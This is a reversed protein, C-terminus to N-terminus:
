RMLPNLRIESGDANTHYVRIQDPGHVFVRWGIVPIDRCTELGVPPLGLCENWIQPEITQIMFESRDSGTEATVTQSVRSTVIQSTYTNHYLNADDFTTQHNRRIESGDTNTHYAIVQNPGSVIVYWGPTPSTIHSDCTEGTLNTSFGLCGSWNMSEYAEVAFHTTALGTEAAAQSLIQEGLSPSLEGSNVVASQSRLVDANQDARYVWQQYGDAISVLWGPTLVPTCVEGAQGLGLCSDSWTHSRGSSVRLREIAIDYDQSIEQEIREIVSEPVRETNTPPVITALAPLGSSLLGGALLMPGYLRDYVAQLRTRVLAPLPFNVMSFAGFHM